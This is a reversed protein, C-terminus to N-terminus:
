IKTPEVSASQVWVLGSALTWQRGTDVNKLYAQSTWVARDKGYDTLERHTTYAAWPSRPWWDLDQANRVAIELKGTQWNLRSITVWQGYTSNTDSQGFWVHDTFPDHTVWRLAMVTPLRVAKGDVSFQEKRWRLTQMPKGGSELEGTSDGFKIPDFGAVKYRLPFEAPFQAALAMPTGPVSFSGSVAGEPFPRKSKGVRRKRRTAVDVVWVEVEDYYPADGVMYMVRGAASDGAQIWRCYVVNRGEHQALMRKPHGPQLLYLDSKTGKTWSYGREGPAPLYYRAALVVRPETSSPVLGTLILASLVVV